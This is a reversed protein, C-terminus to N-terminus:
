RVHCDATALWSTQTFNAANATLVVEGKSNVGWGTAPQPLQVSTSNNLPSRGTTGSVRVAESSLPETPSPPLGGRGTNIFQSSDKVAEAACAQAVQNEPSFVPPQVLGQSPTVDPTNITVIGSFQTGLASSATIADGLAFLGQTTIQVNGGLRGADARISSNELISLTGATITINGGNGSEAATTSIQSNGRLQLSDQVQLNINAGNGLVTSGIISANNLKIENARAQLNGAPGSGRASVSVQAGDRISLLGTNIELNGGIGTAENEGITPRPEGSLAFM